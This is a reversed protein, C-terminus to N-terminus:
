LSLAEIIEDLLDENAFLIDHTEHIIPTIKIHPIQQLARKAKDIEIIKDGTFLVAATPVQIKHAKLKWDSFLRLYHSNIYSVDARVFEPEGPEREYRMLNLRHELLHQSHAYDHGIDMIDYPYCFPAILKLSSMLDPYRLATHLAAGGGMSFGLVIPKHLHCHQSFHNVIDAFVAWDLKPLQESKSHGPMNVAYVTYGKQVLERMFRYQNPAPDNIGHLWIIDRRWHTLQWWWHAPHDPSFVYYEISHNQYSFYHQTLM